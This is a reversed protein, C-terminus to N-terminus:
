LLIPTHPLTERLICINATASSRSSRTPNFFLKITSLLVTLFQLMANKQVASFSVSTAAYLVLIWVSKSLGNKPSSLCYLCTLFSLCFSIILYIWFALGLLVYFCVFIGIQVGVLFLIIMTKLAMFSNSETRIKVAPGGDGYRAKGWRKIKKTENM